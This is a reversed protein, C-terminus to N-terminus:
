WRKGTLSHNRLEIEKLIRLTQREEMLFRTVTISAVPISEQTMYHAQLHARLHGSDYDIINLSCWLLCGNITAKSVNWWCRHHFVCEVKRGQFEKESMGRGVLNCTPSIASAVCRTESIGPINGSKVNGRAVKAM